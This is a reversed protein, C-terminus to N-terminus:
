SQTKDKGSVVMNTFTLKDNKDVSSTGYFDHTLFPKRVTFQFPLNPKSIIRPTIISLNKM